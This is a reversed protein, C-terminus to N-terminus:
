FHTPALNEPCPISVDQNEAHSYRGKTRVELGETTSTSFEFLRDTDKFHWPICGGLYANGGSPWFWYQEGFEGFAALRISCTEVGCISLSLGM